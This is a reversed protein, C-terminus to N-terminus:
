DSPICWSSTCRTRRLAASRRTSMGSCARIPTSTRAGACYGSRSIGCEARIGATILIAFFALVTVVMLALGVFILAFLQPIILLWKVFILLRSLHEPYEVDYEPLPSETVVPAPAMTGAMM